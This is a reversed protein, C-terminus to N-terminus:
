AVQCTKKLRYERVKKGRQKYSTQQLKNLIQGQFIKKGTSPQVGQGLAQKSFILQKM